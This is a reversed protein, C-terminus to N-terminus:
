ATLGLMVLYGLTVAAFIALETIRGRTRRMGQVNLEMLSPVLDKVQDRMVYPRTKYM